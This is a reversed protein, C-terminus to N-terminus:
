FTPFSMGLVGPFVCPIGKNAPLFLCTGEEARYGKRIKVIGFLILVM